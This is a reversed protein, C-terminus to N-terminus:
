NLISNLREEQEKAKITETQKQAIEYAEYDKPVSVVLEGTYYGDLNIISVVKFVVDNIMIGYKEEIASKNNKIYECVKDKEIYSLNNDIHFSEEVVASESKCGITTFVYEGLKLEYYKRGYKNTKTVIQGNAVISMLAM